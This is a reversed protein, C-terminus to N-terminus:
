GSTQLLKYKKCSKEITYRGGTEKELIKRLSHILVYANQKKSEDNCDWIYSMIEKLEVGKYNLTLYSLLEKQQQNLSCALTGSEINSTIGTPFLSIDEGRVDEKNYFIPSEFFGSVISKNSENSAVFHLFAEKLEELCKLYDSTYYRKYEYIYNIRSTIFYRNVKYTFIPTIIDFRRIFYSIEKNVDEFMEESFMLIIDEERKDENLFSFFSVYDSFFEARKRVGKLIELLIELSEAESDCIAIKM